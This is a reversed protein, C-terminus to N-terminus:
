KLSAHFIRSIVTIMVPKRGYMMVLELTFSLERLDKLTRLGKLVIDETLARLDIM